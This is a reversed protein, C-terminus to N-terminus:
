WSMRFRVPNVASFIHISWPWNKHEGTLGFDIAQRTPHWPHLTPCEILLSQPSESKLCCYKIGVLVDQWGISPALRDKSIKVIQVSNFGQWGKQRLDRHHMKELYIIFEVDKEEKNGEHKEDKDWTEKEARGEENANDSQVL